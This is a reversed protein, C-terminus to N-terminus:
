SNESLEDIQWFIMQWIGDDVADPSVGDWCKDKVKRTIRLEVQDSVRSWIDYYAQLSVHKM